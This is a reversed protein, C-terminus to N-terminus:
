RAAVPPHARVRLAMASRWSTASRGLSRRTPTKLAGLGVLALVEAESADAPGTTPLADIGFAVNRAVDLHPFLAYDQFVMGIRRHEPAVARGAQSVWEGALQIHGGAVPELGAVARLLTTKGCGSPGILVGIEGAQLALSVGDVAPRDRGRYQVKLDHVDLFM